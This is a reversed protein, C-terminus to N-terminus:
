RDDIRYKHSEADWFLPLCRRKWVFPTSYYALTPITPASPCVYGNKSPQGDGRLAHMYVRESPKALWNCSHQRLCLLASGRLAADIAGEMEQRMEDTVPVYVAALSNWAAHASDPVRDDAIVVEEPSQCYASGAVLVVLLLSIAHHM